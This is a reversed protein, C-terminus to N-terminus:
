ASGLYGAGDSRASRRVRPLVLSVVAVLACVILAIVLWWRLDAALADWVALTFDRQEGPDAASGLLSRFGALGLLELGCTVFGLVAMLALARRRLPTVAVALLGVVLTAVPLWLGTDDIAAYTSRARELESSDAVSFQVPPLADTAGKKLLNKAGLADLTSRLVPGLDVSVDTPGSDQSLVKVLKRHMTRNIQAWLDPFERSTVVRQAAADVAKQAIAAPIKSRVQRVAVATVKDAVAQQVQTEDALPTVTDVYADTDTVVRDLWASAIAAPLLVAFLLVLLGSVFRRLLTM